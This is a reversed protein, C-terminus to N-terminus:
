KAEDLVGAKRGGRRDKIDSASRRSKDIVQEVLAVQIYHDEIQGRARDGYCSLSQPCVGRGHSPQHSIDRLEFQGLVVEIEPVVSSHEVKESFRGRTLYTAVTRRANFGFPCITTAVKPSEPGSRHLPSGTARYLASPM